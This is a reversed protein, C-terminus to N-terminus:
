ALISPPGRARVQAPARERLHSVLHAARPLPAAALRLTAIGPALGSDLGQALVCVACQDAHALAAAHDPGHAAATWLGVLLSAALWLPIWFRRVRM